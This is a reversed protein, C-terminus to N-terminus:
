VEMGMIPNEEWIKQMEVEKRKADKEEMKKLKWDLIAVEYEKLSREEVAKFKKRLVSLQNICSQKARWDENGSFGRRVQSELFQIRQTIERLEPSPTYQPREIM